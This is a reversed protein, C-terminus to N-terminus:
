PNALLDLISTKLKWFIFRFYQTESLSVLLLYNIGNYKFNVCILVSEIRYQIKKNRMNRFSNFFWSWYSGNFFSTMSFYEIFLSSKLFWSERITSYVTQGWHTVNIRKTELVCTSLEKAVQLVPAWSPILCTRTTASPM